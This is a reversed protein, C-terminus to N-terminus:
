VTVNTLRPGLAACLTVKVSTSPAPSVNTLALLLLAPPVVVTTPAETPAVVVLKAIPWVSVRITLTVTLLEALPLTVLVAAPVLVVGSGVGPLLVVVSTTGTTLRASTLALKTPKGTLAGTLVTTLPVALKTLVLAVFVAVVATNVIVRTGPRALTVTVLSTSPVPTYLLTLPTTVNVGGVTTLTVGLPVTLAAMLKTCVVVVTAPVPVPLAVFSVLLPLLVAVKLTSPVAASMLALKAPKGALAGAPEM